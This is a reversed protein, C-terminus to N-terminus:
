IGQLEFRRFFRRKVAEAALFYALLIVVVLALVGAPMPTFGFYV